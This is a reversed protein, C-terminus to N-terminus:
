LGCPIRCHALACDLLEALKYNSSTGDPDKSKAVCVNWCDIDGPACANVCDVAESCQTELVCLEYEGSCHDTMCAACTGGADPPVVPSGTDVIPVKTDAPAVDVPTADVLGPGADREGGDLDTGAVKGGCGALALLLLSALRSRM